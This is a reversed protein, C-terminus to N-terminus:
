HCRRLTALIRKGWLRIRKEGLGAITALEALSGPRRAALVALTGNPFVVYPACDASAALRRRLERLAEEVDTHEGLRPSRPFLDEPLKTVRGDSSKAPVQLSARTGLSGVRVRHLAQDDVELYGTEVLREVVEGLWRAPLAELLAYNRTRGPPPGKAGRLFHVLEARTVSAPRSDRTHTGALDFAAELIVGVLAKQFAAASSDSAQATARRHRKSKSLAKSDSSSSGPSPSTRQRQRPTRATM